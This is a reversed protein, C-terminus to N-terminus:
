GSSREPIFWYTALLIICSQCFLIKIYLITIHFLEQDAILVNHRVNCRLNAWIHGLQWNVEHRQYAQCVEVMAAWLEVNFVDKPDWLWSLVRQVKVWHHTEYWIWLLGSEAAWFNAILFRNKCFLEPFWRLSEHFNCLELNNESLEAM